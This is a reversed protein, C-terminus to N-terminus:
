TSLKSVVCEATARLLDEDDALHQYEAYPLQGDNYQKEFFIQLRWVDPDPKDFDVDIGGVYPTKFVDVGIEHTRLFWNTNPIQKLGRYALRLIDAAEDFGFSRVLLEKAWAMTAYWLPVIRQILEEDTM